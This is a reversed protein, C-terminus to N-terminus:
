SMSQGLTIKQEAEERYDGKGMNEDGFEATNLKGEFHDFFRGLSWLVNWM